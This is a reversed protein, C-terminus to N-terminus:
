QNAYDASIRLQSKSAYCILVVDGTRPAPALSSSPSPVDHDDPVPYSPHLSHTIPPALTHIGVEVLYKGAPHVFHTRHTSPLSSIPKWRAELEKKRSMAIDEKKIFLVKIQKCRESTVNFFTEADSVPSGSLNAIWAQRKVEGRIGDVASNRAFDCLLEM